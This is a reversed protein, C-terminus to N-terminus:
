PTPSELIIQDYAKRAVDYAAEAAPREDARIANVKSQWCVDVAKRCWEASAKSGRIPAGAVEVFVPNTHSSAFIRLAIWSSREIPVDFSLDQLSGDAEIEKKAAVKGNVILEVPVKRTGAIRAREVHWYPQEQLHRGRIRVADPDNPDEKLLAAVKTQVRVPRPADLSLVKEGVGVGDVSFDVLHSLGDCVYSRGAKIADAWRDFTLPGDLKVYGRGLGVREGYVCPFDTEGSVVARYGCNLTHYWINLEWVIPTDVASIFDCADHVVDIIYENAGIGDFKPMELNPLETSQCALGAGSHSFGVVGGQKKGWQLIPLDWSPWQEIKETGPFDDEKLRILCLHGAHSSPFGSVEVDYRLLYNPLSLDHTKGEFFGKQYYWCPGWSLCCGINLDEGVCHRFMDAPLVGKTPNDYHACGAAHIHHDGSYWGMPRLHIWRKLKFSESSATSEPVHVSRSQIVYEPGRSYTVNYDGPPLMVSEGDGRYVQPHFFFDPALRRTQSPYVRGFKDRFEFWGTTPSGDTDALHLVVQCAPRAHFLIPTDSRFGIDQTAQGVHFQISAERDGADRCYIQAIRYEVKLGSLAPSLPRSNFLAVDLFRDRLQDATITVAPDPTNDTRRVMPQANPSDLKLEATVGAMNLVKVIFNRWGHQALEKAVPGAQSKVRSEPNIEVVALTLPDLIEQMGRVIEEDNTGAAAKDIAALTEKSLPEGLFDMAEALRRVQAVLPQAAVDSVIPPAPDVAFGPGTLLLTVSWVGFM